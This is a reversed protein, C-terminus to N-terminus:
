NGPQIVQLEASAARGSTLGTVTITYNGPLDSDFFPLGRPTSGGSDTPFVGRVGNNPGTWSFQVNEGPSFGWITAYYTDGIEVQTKSLVVQAPGTGIVVQLEASATRGSTLGTVIIIYNGPPDREHVRHSPASGDSDTLFVGGMVGNTPGTWSFQVNEGPSFGWADAHYTDGIKVRSTSLVLQAAGTGANSPKLLVFATIAIAVVMLLAIAWGYRKRTPQSSPTPLNGRPTGSPPGRWNGQAPRGPHIPTSPAYPWSPAGSAPRPVPISPSIRPADIKKPAPLPQAPPKPPPPQKLPRRPSQSPPVPAPANPKLQWQSPHSASTAPSQVRPIKEWWQPRLLTELAGNPSWSPACCEKLRNAVSDLERDDVNSLHKWVDTQYPPNFDELRFILNEGDNLAEWLGTNKSLALLSTYIVLGPFTDMWQGWQWGPRQYNRHGSESPPSKGTFPVIWSCDFDVLRLGGNVDILVNGHQLDGHAFEALQMRALLNRWATVLAAIGDANDDKVLGDIYQDLTRGNVWQMRILPWTRGKIVIADDFWRSTAVCDAIGRTEFYQNLVDYRERSSVDCRTFFRLAQEEGGVVAKFVVASSGSAPMPIGLLPHAPFHATKLEGSTFNRKPDQVAKVYDDANPYEIM